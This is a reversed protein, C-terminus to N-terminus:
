VHNREESSRYNLLLNIEDLRYRFADRHDYFLAKLGVSDSVAYWGIFGDLRDRNVASLQADVADVSIEDLLELLTKM